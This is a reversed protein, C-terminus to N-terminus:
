KSAHVTLLARVRQHEDPQGCRINNYAACTRIMHRHARDIERKNGRAICKEVHSLAYEYRAKADAEVEAFAKEYTM